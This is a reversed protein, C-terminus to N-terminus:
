CSNDNVSTKTTKNLPLKNDSYFKINIYKEDYGGSKKTISKILARIKIWLKEYKKIKENNENTLLLTLYRNGNIEKFYGNMKNLIFYLPNVSDNKVYKDCIKM